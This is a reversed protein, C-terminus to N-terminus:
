KKITCIFECTFFEFKAMKQSSFSIFIHGTKKIVRLCEKLWKETIEWFVDNEFANKTKQNEPYYWPDAFILDVSENPLTKFGEICDQQYIKNTEMKFV